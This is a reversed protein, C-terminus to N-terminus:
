LGKEVKGNEPLLSVHGNDTQEIARSATEAKRDGGEVKHRELEIVPGVSSWSLLSRAPRSQNVADSLDSRNPSREETRGRSEPDLEAM